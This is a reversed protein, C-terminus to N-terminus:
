LSPLPRRHPYATSACCRWGILAFVGDAYRRDAGVFQPVAAGVRESHRLSRPSWPRVFSTDGEPLESSRILRLGAVSLVLGIVACLVVAM